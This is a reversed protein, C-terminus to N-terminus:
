PLHFKPRLDNLSLSDWCARTLHAGRPPFCGHVVKIGRTELLEVAPVFDKDASVLVATDYNDAWAMHIMDTAIRVDVGKEETGRMDAGCQPCAGISTHCAPCRPPTRKRQRPVMSVSVGRFTDVKTEAWRRLRDDNRSSPDYSGYFSLGQYEAVTPGGVKQGAADALAPGIASWDTRFAADVERMSLTYNWFDIFVRVRNRPQAIADTEPM